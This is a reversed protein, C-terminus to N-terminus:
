GDLLDRIKGLLALARYPKLLLNQHLSNDGIAHQRDDTFGSTMQIKIAPYKEAVIMALEYGDMDPMVVDSFMLDVTNGELLQLAESCNCAPLVNYGQQSLIESCLELLKPEDDVVLLTENGGLTKTPTASAVYQLDAKIGERPFYLRFQTGRGPVSAVDIAGRSRE